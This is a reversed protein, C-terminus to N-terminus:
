VVLLSTLSLLRRSPRFPPRVRVLPSFTPLGRLSLKISHRLDATPDIGYKACLFAYSADRLEEVTRTDVVEATIEGEVESSSSAVVRSVKKGKKVPRPAPPKRPPSEARLPRSSSSTPLSPAPSSEPFPDLDPSDRPTSASPSAAGGALLLDAPDFPAALFLEVDDLAAAAFDPKSELALAAVVWMTAEEHSLPPGELTALLRPILAKFFNKVPVPLHRRLFAVEVNSSLISLRMNGYREATQM